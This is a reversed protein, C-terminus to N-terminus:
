EAMYHPNAHRSRSDLSGDNKVKFAHEALWQQDSILPITPKSGMKEWVADRQTNEKTWRYNYSNLVEKQAAPSLDTGKVWKAAEVKFSAEVKALFSM